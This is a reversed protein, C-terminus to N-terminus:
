SSCYTHVSTIRRWNFLRLSLTFDSYSDFSTLWTPPRFIFPVPQTVLTPLSSCFLLKIPKIMVGSIFRPSTCSAPAWSHFVGSSMRLFFAVPSANDDHTPYWTDGSLRRQWGLEPWDGSRGIWDLKRATLATLAHIWILRSFHCLLRNRILICLCQGQAMRHHSELIWGYWNGHGLIWGM